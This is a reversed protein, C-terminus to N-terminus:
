RGNIARAATLLQDALIIRAQRLEDDELAQAAAVTIVPNVQLEALNAVLRRIDLILALRTPPQAEDTV